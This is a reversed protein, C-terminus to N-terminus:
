EKGGKEGQYQAWFTVREKSQIVWGLVDNLAKGSPAGGATFDERGNRLVLDDFAAFVAAKRDAASEPEKTKNLNAAEPLEEEPVAGIGLAEDYLEVPVFTPVNKEFHIVHGLTSALTRTRLSIFNM